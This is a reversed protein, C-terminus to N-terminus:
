LDELSRVPDRQEGREKAEIALRVDKAVADPLMTLFGLVCGCCEMTWRKPIMSRLPMLGLITGGPKGMARRICAEIEDRLPEALPVQITVAKEPSGIDGGCLDCVVKGPIRM